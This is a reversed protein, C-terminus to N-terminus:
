SRKVTAALVFLMTAGEIVIILASPVGLVRQMAQSGTELTGIFLAAPIIALPETAGLLAVTVAKFGFGLSFGDILRHHVGLVEIGGALGAMAGALLMVGWTVATLSFGAYVAAKRSSGVVRVAFGFTTRWLVFSLAAALGCAILFGPHADLGMIRPLWAARPMLPSQLFGAGFQGLSGSLIQQVLLVAVFNLLLTVLVEHVRRGLHILAALAAWGMGALMGSLLALIIAIAPQQEPLALAAAAAGAGGIIMQGEAGINIVGTGALLYPTARNLVVSIQHLSGFAGDLMAAFAVLPNQGAFAILLAAVALSLFLAISIRGTGMEILILSKRLYESWIPRLSQESMGGHHNPVVGAFGGNAMVAIRDSIGLIEELESSIYIIAAGTERLALMRELVFRTAGPDLGWTAQHAILVAPKSEMERAIVIKQQNGGSLRSVRFAPNPARINYTSMLSRLFAQARGLTLLFGNSYPMRGSDRLMLNEGITMSQVLGTQARDAPMYALGSQRRKEPNYKSIDVGDLLICGSQLPAAGTLVNALELQGNGDVGAIGLIEGRRVEFTLSALGAAQLKTISMRAAGSPESTKRVVNASLGRGIMMEVLNDRLIARDSGALTARGTVRGARLVTVSDCIDLVEPLKHSIFVIGKKEARLRRLIVLLDEIEAPALNSTPEDLILLEANRLVAKLIEVRQRRGLPLSSVLVHPDLDLGFRQSAERIREEMDRQTLIRGAEPWGLMVNEVVSMAEVLMFHQHIMAIGAAM